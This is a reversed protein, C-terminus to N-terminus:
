ALKKIRRRLRRSWGFAAGAGMIPLPSPAQSVPTFTLNSTSPGSSGANSVYTTGFYDLLPYYNRNDPNNVTGFELYSDGNRFILNASTVQGNSVWIGSGGSSVSTFTPWGGAPANTASLITVTLGSTQRISNDILGSIIGTVTAPNTPTSTTGTTTSFSFNFDLAAAGGANLGLVATATILSACFAKNLIQPMPTLGVM